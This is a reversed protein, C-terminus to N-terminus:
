MFLGWTAYFIGTLAVILTIPHTAFKWGLILPMNKKIRAFPILKEMGWRAILYREGGALGVAIPDKDIERKRWVEVADFHQSARRIEETVGYPIGEYFYMLRPSLSTAATKDINQSRVPLFVKWVRWDEASLKPYPIPTADGGAMISESNEQRYNEIFM